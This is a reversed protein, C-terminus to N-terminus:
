LGLGASQRSGRGSRSTGPVSDAPGREAKETIAKEYSKGSFGLAAGIHDRVRGTSPDPLNGSGKGGLRGAEKLREKAEAREMVELSEGM